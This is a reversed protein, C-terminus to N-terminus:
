SRVSRMRGTVAVKGNLSNKVKQTDSAKSKEFVQMSISSGSNAVVLPVGRAVIVVAVVEVVGSRASSNKGAEPQIILM